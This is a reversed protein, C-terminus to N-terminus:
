RKLLFIHRNFGGYKEKTAVIELGAKQISKVSAANLPDASATVYPYKEADVRELADQILRYELHHGRHGPAVMCMELQLVQDLQDVSLGADPGLTDPGKGPFISILFGAPAGEDDIALTGFGQSTIMEYVWTEDETTLAFLSKDPMLEYIDVLMQYILSAEAPMALRITYNDNYQAM